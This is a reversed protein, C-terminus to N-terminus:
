GTTLLRPFTSSDKGLMVFGINGSGLLRLLKQALYIRRGWRFGVERKLALILDLVYTHREGSVAKEKINLVFNGHPALVRHFQEARECFWEVYCEPAIGGYTHKRADAYPPSTVILDFRIQHSTRCFILVTM